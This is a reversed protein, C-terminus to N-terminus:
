SQAVTKPETLLAIYDIQITVQVSKATLADTHMWVVFSAQEIPSTTIKGKQREDGVPDKVGFFRKASFNLRLNKTTSSSGTSGSLICHRGLGQEIIHDPQYVSSSSPWDADSLFVGVIPTHDSSRADFKCTIRSGLVTFHDYFPMIQDYGMPQHGGAARSPDFLDNARFAVWGGTGYSATLTTFPVVYRGKFLFKKPFPLRQVQSRYGKKRSRLRKRGRRRKIAYKTRKRKPPM